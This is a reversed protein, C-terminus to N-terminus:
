KCTESHKHMKECKLVKKVRALWYCGSIGELLIVATHGPNHTPDSPDRSDAGLLWPESRTKTRVQEGLDKTVIVETGIPVDKWQAMLRVEAVKTKQM